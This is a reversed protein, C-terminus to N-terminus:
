FSGPHSLQTAWATASSSVLSLVMELHSREATSTACTRSYGGQKPKPLDETM